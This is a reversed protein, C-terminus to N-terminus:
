ATGAQEDSALGAIEQERGTAIWDAVEGRNSVFAFPNDLLCALSADLVDRARASEAPLRPAGSALFSPTAAIALSAPRYDFAPPVAASRVYMTEAVPGQEVGDALLVGPFRKFYRYRVRLMEEARHIFSCSLHWPVGLVVIRCDQSYMWAMPGDDGWSTTAPLDRIEQARPGCAAYSYIPRPSRLMGPRGLAAQALIGTEAPSRRVDFRRSSCYAFTYTPFILTRKEGIVDRMLLLLEEAVARPAWPLRHAFSWLGSYVLIVEDDSDIVSALMARIDRESTRSM